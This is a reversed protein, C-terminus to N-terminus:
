KEKFKLEYINKNLAPNSKYVKITYNDGHLARNNKPDATFVGDAVGTVRARWIFIDDELITYKKIKFNNKNQLESVISFDSPTVGPIENPKILLATTWLSSYVIPKKLNEGLTILDSKGGALVIANSPLENEVWELYRIQKKNEMFGSTFQTIM